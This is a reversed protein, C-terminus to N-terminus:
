WGLDEVVELASIRLRNGDMRVSRPVTAGGLAAACAAPSTPDAPQDLFGVHRCSAM